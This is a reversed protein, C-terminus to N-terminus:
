IWISKGDHEFLDKLFNFATTVFGFILLLWGGSVEFLMRHRNLDHTGMSQHGKALISVVSVDRWISSSKITIIGVTIHITYNYALLAIHKVHFNGEYRITTIAVTIEWLLYQKTQFSIKAKIGSHHLYENHIFVNLSFICVNILYSLVLLIQGIIYNRFQDIFLMHFSIYKWLNIFKVLSELTYMKIWELQCCM